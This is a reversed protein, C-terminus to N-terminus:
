HNPRGLHSTYSLFANRRFGLPDCNSCSSCSESASATVALTVQFTRGCCYAQELVSFRERFLETLTCLDSLWTLLQSLRWTHTSLCVWFCVLRCAFLRLSVCWCLCWILDSVMCGYMSELPMDVTCWGQWIDSRENWMCVCVVYLNVNQGKCESRLMRNTQLDDRCDIKLILGRKNVLWSDLPYLCGTQEETRIHRGGGTGDM